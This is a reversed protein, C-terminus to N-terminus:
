SKAPEVWGEPRTCDDNWTVREKYVEQEYDTQWHVPEENEWTEFSFNDIPDDLQEYPETGFYLGSLGFDASANLPFTMMMIVLILSVSLFQIRMKKM